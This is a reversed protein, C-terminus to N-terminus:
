IGTHTFWACENLSMRSDRNCYDIFAQKSLRAGALSLASYGGLSFGAAAIRQRDATLGEPLLSELQDVIASMDQPREWTRLSQEPDSDGSTSGPHNPAIVIMGHDALAKAFWGTNMGNGGSGHSFVVVPYLGPKPRPSAVLEIGTFVSNKGFVFKEGSDEAPFYIDLRVPVNRHTLAVTKSVHGTAADAPHPQFLVSALLALAAASSHLFNTNDM